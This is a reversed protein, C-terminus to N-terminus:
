ITKYLETFVFDLYILHFVVTKRVGWVEGLVIDTENRSDASGKQVLLIKCDGMRVFTACFSYTMSTLVSM